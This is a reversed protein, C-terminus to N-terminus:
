VMRSRKEIESAAYGGGIAEQAYLSVNV